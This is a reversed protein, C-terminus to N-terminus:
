MIERPLCVEDHVFLMRPAAYKHDACAERFWCSQGKSATEQPIHPGPYLSLETSISPEMLVKPVIGTVPLLAIALSVLVVQFLEHGIQISLVEQPQSAAISQTLFPVACLNEYLPEDPLNNV